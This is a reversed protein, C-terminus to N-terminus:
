LWGLQSLIKNITFGGLVLLGQSIRVRKVVTEVQGGLARIADANAVGQKYNDILIKEIDVLVPQLQAHNSAIARANADLAKSNASTVAQVRDLRERIAHMEYVTQATAEYAVRISEEPKAEPDYAPLMRINPKSSM